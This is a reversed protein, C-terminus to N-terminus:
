WWDAGAPGKMWLGWRTLSCSAQVKKCFKKCTSKVAGEKTDSCLLCDGTVSEPGSDATSKWSDSDPNSENDGQDTNEGSAGIASDRDHDGTNGSVEATVRSNPDADGKVPHPSILSSLSLNTLATAPQQCWKAAWLKQASGLQQVWAPCTFPQAWQQCHSGQDWHPGEQWM